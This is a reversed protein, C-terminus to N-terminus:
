PSPLSISRGSRSGGMSWILGLLREQGDDPDDDDDDEDQQRDGEDAADELPAARHGECAADEQDDDPRDEAEGGVEVHLTEVQPRDAQDQDDGADDAQDDRDPLPRDPRPTRAPGFDQDVIPPCDIRGVTLWRRTVGAITPVSGDVPSYSRLRRLGYAVPEPM